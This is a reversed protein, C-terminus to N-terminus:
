IQLILLYSVKFDEALELALDIQGIEYFKAIIQSNNRQCHDQESLVLRALCETSLLIDSWSLEEDTGETTPQRALVSFAMNLHQIFYKMSRPQNIWTLAGSSPKASWEAQRARKVADAVRKLVQGVEAVIKIRAKNDQGFQELEVSECKM